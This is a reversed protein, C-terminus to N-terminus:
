NTICVQKINHDMILLIKSQDANGFLGGLKKRKNADKIFIQVGKEVVRAPESFDNWTHSWDVQFFSSLM